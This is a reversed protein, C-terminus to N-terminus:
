KFVQEKIYKEVAKEYLEKDEPYSGIYVCNIFYAGGIKELYEAAPGDLRHLFHSQYGNLCYFKTNGSIYSFKYNMFCFHLGNRTEMGKM